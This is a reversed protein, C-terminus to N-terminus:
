KKSLSFSLELSLSLSLYFSRSKEGVLILVIFLPPLFRLSATFPLKKLPKKERFAASALSWKGSV